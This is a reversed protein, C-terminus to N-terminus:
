IRGRKPAKIPTRANAMKGMKELYYDIADSSNPPPPSCLAEAMELTVGQNTLMRAMLKRASGNSLTDLMLASARSADNVIDAALLM